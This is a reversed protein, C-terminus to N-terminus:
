MSAFLLLPLLSVRLRVMSFFLIYDDIEPSVSLFAQFTSVNPKCHESKPTNRPNGLQSTQLNTSICVGQYGLIISTLCSFNFCDSFSHHAVLNYVGTVNLSLCKIFMSIETFDMSYVRTQIVGQLSFDSHIPLFIKLSYTM